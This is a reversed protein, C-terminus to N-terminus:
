EAAHLLAKVPHGTSDPVLDGEVVSGDRFFLNPRRGPQSPQLIGDVTQFMPVIRGTCRADEELALPLQQGDGPSYRRVGLQQQVLDGGIQVRFRLM